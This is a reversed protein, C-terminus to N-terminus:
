RSLDGLATVADEMVVAMADRMAVWSAEDLAVAALDERRVM